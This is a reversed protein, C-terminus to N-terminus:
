QKGDVKSLSNTGPSQSAPTAAETGEAKALAARAADFQPRVKERDIGRPNGINAVLAALAAYLDPAAAILRANALAQVFQAPTEDATCGHEYKILNHTDHLYPSTIADGMCIRHGWDDDELLWPGPTFQASPEAEPRASKADACKQSQSSKM